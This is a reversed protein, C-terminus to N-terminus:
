YKLYDLIKSKLEDYKGIIELNENYIQYLDKLIWLKEKKKNYLELVRKVTLRWIKGSSTTYIYVEKNTVTIRDWGNLISSHNSDIIYEFLVKEVM